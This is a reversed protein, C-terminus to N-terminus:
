EVHIFIPIFKLACWSNFHTVGFLATHSMGSDRREFHHSKNQISFIHHSRNSLRPVQHGRPLSDCRTCKRSEKMLWTIGSSLPLVRFYTELKNRSKKSHVLIFFIVLRLWRLLLSCALSAAHGVVPTRADFSGLWLFLLFDRTFGSIARWRLFLRVVFELLLWGWFSRVVSYLWCLCAAHWAALTFTRRISALWHM